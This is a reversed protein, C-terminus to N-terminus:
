FLSPQKSMSKKVGEEYISSLLTTELRQQQQIPQEKVWSQVAKELWIRYNSM